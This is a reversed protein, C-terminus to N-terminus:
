LKPKYNKNNCNITAYYVLSVCAGNIPCNEKQQCNCHKSLTNRLIQRNDSNIKTKINPM